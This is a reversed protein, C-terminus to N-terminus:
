RGWPLSGVDDDFHELRAGVLQGVRVALFEGISPVGIAVDGRGKSLIGSNRKYNVYGVGWNATCIYIEM